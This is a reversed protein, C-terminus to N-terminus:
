FWKKAARVIESFLHQSGFNLVDVEKPAALVESTKSTSSHEEKSVVDRPRPTPTVPPSMQGLKSHGAAASSTTANAAAGPQSVVSAAPAILAAAGKLQKLAAELEQIKLQLQEAENPAIAAHLQQQAGGGGQANSGSPTSQSSSHVVNAQNRNTIHSKASQVTPPPPTLQKPVFAHQPHQESHQGSGLLALLTPKALLASAPGHQQPLPEPTTIKAKAQDAPAQTCQKLLPQVPAETQEQHAMQLGSAFADQSDHVVIACPHFPNGPLTDASPSAAESIRARKAPSEPTEDAPKKASAAMSDEYDGFLDQAFPDVYGQADQHQWDDSAVPVVLAAEAHAAASPPPTNGNSVSAATASASAPAPLLKMQALVLGKLDIGPMAASFVEFLQTLSPPFVPESSTAEAQSSPLAKNNSAAQLQAFLLLQM